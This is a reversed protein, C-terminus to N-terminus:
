TVPNGYSFMEKQDTNSWAYTVERLNSGFNDVKWGFMDTKSVCRCRTNFTLDLGLMKAQCFSGNFGLKKSSREQQIKAWQLLPILKVLSM